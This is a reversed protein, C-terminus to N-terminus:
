YLLIWSKSSSLSRYYQYTPTITYNGDTPISNEYQSKLTKINYQSPGSTEFSLGNDVYINIASIYSKSNALNALDENLYPLTNNIKTSENKNLKLYNRINRNSIIFLSLDQADGVMSYLNKDIQKLTEVTSESVRIEIIEKTWNYSIAGVIAIIIVIVSTTYLMLESRINRM